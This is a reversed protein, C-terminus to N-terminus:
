PSHKEFSLFKSRLQRLQKGFWRIGKQDLSFYFKENLSSTTDSIVSGKM